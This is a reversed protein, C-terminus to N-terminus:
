CLWNIQNHRVGDGTGMWKNGFYTSGYKDHANNAAHVFPVGKMRKITMM